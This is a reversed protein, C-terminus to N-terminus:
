FMSTIVLLNIEFSPLGGQRIVSNDLELNSKGWNWTLLKVYNQDSTVTGGKYKSTNEYPM